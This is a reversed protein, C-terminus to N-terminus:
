DTEASGIYSYQDILEDITEVSLNNLKEFLYTESQGLKKLEGAQKQILDIQTQM